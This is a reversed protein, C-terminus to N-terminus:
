IERAGHKRRQQNMEEQLLEYPICRGELKGKEATFQCVDLVSPEGTIFEIEVAPSQRVTACSSAVLALFLLRM